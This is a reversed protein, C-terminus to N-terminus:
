AFRLIYQGKQRLRIELKLAKIHVHKENNIETFLSQTLNIKAM